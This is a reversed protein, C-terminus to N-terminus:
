PCPAGQCSNPGIQTGSGAVQNAPNAPLNNSRLVNDGYVTSGDAQLGVSSNLQILNGVVHGDVTRIGPSNSAGGNNRVRNNRVMPGVTGSIGTGGNGTVQNEIILGGGNSIGFTGNATVRNRQVIASVASIGGNGNSEITLDSIIGPGLNIATNGMGRVAGHSVSTRTNPNATIGRGTGTPSCAVPNGTCSTVGQIVFGGLDISVSGDSTVDIATTNEDPVTLNSTLLYSGPAALTVPFGPGDGPFCGTAVCAQHIELAGDSAQALPVVLLLAVVIFLFTPAQKM